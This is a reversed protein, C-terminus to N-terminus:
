HRAVILYASDRMLVLSMTGFGITTDSPHSAQHLERENNARTVRKISKWTLVLAVADFIVGSGRACMMGERRM